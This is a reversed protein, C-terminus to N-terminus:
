RAIENLLKTLAVALQARYHLLTNPVLLPAASDFSRVVTTWYDVLLIVSTPNPLHLTNDTGSRPSDTHTTQATRPTLTHAHLFTPANAALGASATNDEGGGSDRVESELVCGEMLLIYAFVHRHARLMSLLFKVTRLQLLIAERETDERHEHSFADRISGTCAGPEPSRKPKSHV